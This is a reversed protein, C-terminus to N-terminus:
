ALEAKAMPFLKGYRQVVEDEDWAEAREPAVRLVLHFHNAQVAYACVDIAYLGSLHHLREVLWAKRHDFNKGTYRDDGCLFARRVCRSICHYYPTTPVHVQSARSVTM